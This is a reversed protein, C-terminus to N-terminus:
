WRRPRFRAFLPILVVYLLHPLAALPYLRLLPREGLLRQGSRLLIIDALSKVALAAAAPILFVPEFLAAALGATLLLNFLYISGMCGILFPPYALHKSSFRLRQRLFQRFSAPPATPVAAASHHNFVVSGPTDRHFRHVLLDDDGSLFRSGEGFGGIRTFVDRRYALNAGFSTIPFGAAASGAAVAGMALYDLALMRHFCTDYPGDTRYPAYGMVMHVKESFCAAMEQLWGPSPVTDDDTTIIIDHVASQVATSIAHKKPSPSDTGRPITIVRCNKRGRCYDALLSPTADTSRDDVFLFERRHEPFQQDSLAALLAPLTEAGNHVPIIVSVKPVAGAAPLGTKRIAATLRLLLFVYLAATLIVAATFCLSM